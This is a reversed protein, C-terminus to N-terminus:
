SDERPGHVPCRGDAEIRDLENMLLGLSGNATAALSGDAWRATYIFRARDGIGATCDPHAQEWAQRRVVHDVDGNTGPM